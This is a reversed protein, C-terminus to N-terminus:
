FPIEDDDMSSNDINMFQDLLAREEDSVDNSHVADWMKNIMDNQFKIWDIFNTVLEQDEATLDAPAKLEAKIFYNLEGNPLPVSDSSLSVLYQIPLRNQKSVAKTIGEVAKYSRNNKVRMFFPIPEADLEVANGDKDTPNDMTVLGFVAIVRKTNRVIDRMPGELSDYDKIYGSPRGCNFGGYNDKLDGISLSNALVTRFMKGEKGDVPAPFKEYRQYQYRQMFVRVTVTESFVTTGDSLTLAYSGGPVTEVVMKKGKVEAEGKEAKYLQRLEALNSQTGQNQNFGLMAAVDPGLTETLLAIDTSM